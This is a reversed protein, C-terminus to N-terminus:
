CSGYFYKEKAEFRAIIRGYFCFVFCTRSVITTCRFMTDTHKGLLMERKGDDPSKGADNEQCKDYAQGVDFSNRNSQIGIFCGVADVGEMGDFGSVELDEIWGIKPSLTEEDIDLSEEDGDKAVSDGSQLKSRNKKTGERDETDVEKAPFEEM